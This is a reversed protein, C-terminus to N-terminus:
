GGDKSRLTHAVDHWRIGMTRRAIPVRSNVGYHPQWYRARQWPVVRRAVGNRRDANSGGAGATWGNDGFVMRGWFVRSAILILGRVMAVVQGLVPRFQSSTPEELHRCIAGAFRKQTFVLSRRRQRHEIVGRKLSAVHRAERRGAFPREPDPTRTIEM